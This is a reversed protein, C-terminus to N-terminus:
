FSIVEFRQVLADTFGKYSRTGENDCFKIALELECDIVTWLKCCYGNDLYKEEFCNNFEDEKIKKRCGEILSPNEKPIDEFHLNFYEKEELWIDIDRFLNFAFEALLIKILSSLFLINVFM